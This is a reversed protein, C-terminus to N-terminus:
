FRFPEGFVEHEARMGVNTLLGLALATTVLSSGGHSLLPLTIGTIPMLGVTMATNIAAQTALLTVVGVALLRGFPEQTRAAIRLGCGLLALYLGIVACAGWVGWREGVLCFVFDTRSEPLSYALPDAVPMGALDSGWVGGLALMQKSQHLHYADGKPPAGGDTQTFVATVRSRQESSMVQWLMPLSLAGLLAIPVLHRLRAGAAFLMAYLMPFFLMATGLNPEKLILVVPVLTMLFPPILGWLTRYNERMMLYASLSLIYALKMLESPQMQFGGLSIWRRSGNRAPFAYVVLLLVIAIAFLSWAISRLRRYHWVLSTTWTLVALTLWVMQRSWYDGSGVLEDGRAIGGLGLAILLGACLPVELPWRRTTLADDM